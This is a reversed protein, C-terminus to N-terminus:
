NGLGRLTIHYGSAASVELLGCRGLIQAQLYSLLLTDVQLAPSLAEAETDPLGQPSTFPLGSWYEQRPFGM